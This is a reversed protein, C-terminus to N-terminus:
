KVSFSTTMCRFIHILYKSIEGACEYILTVYLKTPLPYAVLPLAEIGYGLGLLLSHFFITYIIYIYVSGFIDVPLELLIIKKAFIKRNGSLCITDVLPNLM